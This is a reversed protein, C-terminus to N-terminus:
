RVSFTAANSKQGDANVVRVQWTGVTGGNNVQYVWQSATVSVIREPHAASSFVAGAPDTLELHGGSTSFNSGTVTLTTLATTSAAMTTPSLASLVPGVPAVADGIRLSLANSPAAGPGNQVYVAFNGSANLRARGALQTSTSTLLSSDEVGCSTPTACGPGVFYVRAVSPDFRSGDITFAFYTGTGPVSPNSSIGDLTPATTASDTTKQYSVTVPTTLGTGVSVTQASRLPSYKTNSWTVDSASVTYTGPLLSSITQSQTPTYNSSPGTVVIRAPVGSPLGFISIALAGRASTLPGGADAVLQSYSLLTPFDHRALDHGLVSLTIGANGDVGARLSWWPNGLPDVSLEGFPTIAIFPGAVGYLLLELPLRAYTRVTARAVPSLPDLSASEHAAAHPMWDGDDYTVGASLDLTQTASSQIGVSIEGSVGVNVTLVPTIVVPWVGIFVTMPDFVRRAIQKEYTGSVHVGTSLRVSSVIESAVEMSFYTIRGGSIQGDVKLRPRLSIGGSAVIRDGTTGPNGDQDYLVVQDLDFSIAVDSGTSHASRSQDLVSVGSLLSSSRVDQFSLLTDLTFRGDHVVDNLSAQDTKISVAGGSRSVDVVRRLMGDPTVDTVGSVLIDGARVSDLVSPGKLVINSRDSSISDVHNAVASTVM